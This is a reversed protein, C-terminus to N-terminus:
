FFDISSLRKKGAEFSWKKQNREIKRGSGKILIILKVIM